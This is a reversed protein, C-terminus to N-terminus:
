EPKWEPLRGPTWPAGISEAKGELAQLDRMASRLQELAGALEAAAIEYGRMHTKTPASTAAWHGSVVQNVRETLSPPQAEEARRLVRDGYFTVSLADLRTRIGRLEARLDEVPRTAENLASTLLPLRSQAEGLARAAGLTARQLRATKQEFALLAGRDAPPLSPTLIPECVFQQPQGLPTLVGDIRKALQVTYTGPAALPGNPTDDWDGRTRTGVVAPESSSWRLDWAVRQFGQGTPGEIRRVVNGAGDTVTLVVAPAEERAEARLSDWSPYYSNLGAKKHEKEKARRQDRLSQYEDRLWYTFVAGFPPNEATYTASGQEAAGAGGMPSSPIFMPTKRVPLLVAEEALRSENMSRLASYDDLIYFGRSFTGLVLDGERKQIAIDRVSQTPLNGTLKIWERGGDQTFFAGFETGVFLLNPDVHDEAFGAVSGNVPLDSTINTWTRGMDTSKLVYPKLDGMRHRDYTAYVTGAAHQSAVVRTVYAYDGVGAPIEVKRWHAGADETVHILGDDTGAYILGERLPSEFLAVVNGYITTSANKAVADISWVRGMVPLKNRDLQRSLDGSVPRWTDGRDDSRYIRQSAFYLRSPSFPSIILPSDWNWRSGAEGPEPQPQIDILEGTARDYRVLGGHQYQSYVINPNTPDVRPQFGDGGLTIFWDSNRIGHTNSTRSPGGQTNNDQTGGYVYYFPLSNDVEMKYFQTIPLNGFYKYTLCRDFSEYLGGDCGVLVHRSDDPDIWIVHNDVHKNREGARRWTRGGDESIQLFTDMSYVRGPVNPDAFLENYYQPSGACYDSVKEWSAGADATRYTGSKGLAAEVVAVVVGNETRPVTLGIKGMDESPLGGALRKWTDGGDTSKWIGTGPGGDILTWEKRHRQYTSAYVITPDHPDFHVENGGTWEDVYLTRKWTKGGDTSKYVGRDGGSAWLPGQAAVLIRDSDLPDIAVMGIHESAKLGVNNWTKGGDDSRYVGDGWGVSRQSNNEGSGVWVTLPNRPDVTVCGISSTGQSDFIPKWTTGANTTKWVGGYATAVYWTSKDKPHVALDVIRGSTLAPGINRFKLGGFTAASVRSEPKKDAPKAAPKGAAFASGASLAVCLVSTWLQLKRNM